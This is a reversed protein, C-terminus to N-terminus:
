NLAAVRSNFFAKEAANLFKIEEISNVDATLRNKKSWAILKACFHVWNSIKEFDVTGSHQRFEITSHSSYAMPNIKHYRSGLARQVEAISNCSDLGKGIVSRCYTNNNARRSRPMFTDILRELHAYNAFVNAFWANNMNKTSVHVHFGTSKNVQAGTENLVECVAKVRDMGNKNGDLIPSVCEIETSNAALTHEDRSISADTKFQFKTNGNTHTYYGLYDYSVGKANMGSVVAGRNCLMELEIGFKYAFRANEEKPNAKAWAEEILVIDTGMLGLKKLEERKYAKSGKGSMIENVSVMLDKM